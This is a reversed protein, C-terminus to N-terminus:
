FIMIHSLQYIFYKLIWISPRHCYSLSMIYMIFIMIALSCSRVNRIVVSAISMIMNISKVAILIKINLLPLYEPRCSLYLLLFHINPFQNFGPFIIVLSKVFFNYYFLPLFLILYQGIYCVPNFFSLFYPNPALCVISSDIDYM